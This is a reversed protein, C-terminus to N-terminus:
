QEAACTKIKEASVGMKEVALGEMCDVYPALAPQQMLEAAGEMSIKEPLKSKCQEIAAVQFELGMSTEFSKLKDRSMGLCSALKEEAARESKLVDAQHRKFQEADMNKRLNDDHQRKIAAQQDAAKNAIDISMDVFEQKPVEM